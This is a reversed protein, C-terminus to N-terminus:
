LIMLQMSFMILGLVKNYPLSGEKPEIQWFFTLESKLSRDHDINLPNNLSECFCDFLWM